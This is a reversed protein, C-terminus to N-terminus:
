SIATVESIDATMTVDQGTNSGGTLRLYETGIPIEIGGWSYSTAATVGGVMAGGFEFWPGTSNAAVAIQIQGAVTPGTSDNTIMCHLAAGYGDDLTIGSSNFDAGSATSTVGDWLQTRVKTSAM